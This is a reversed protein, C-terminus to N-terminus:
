EQDDAADAACAQQFRVMDPLPQEMKSCFEDYDRM